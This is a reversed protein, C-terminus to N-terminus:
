HAAKQQRLKEFWSIYRLFNKKSLRAAMAAYSVDMHGYEIFNEALIRLSQRRQRAFTLM